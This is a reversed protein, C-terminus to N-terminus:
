QVVNSYHADTLCRREASPAV